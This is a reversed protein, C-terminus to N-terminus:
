ATAIVSAIPAIFDIAADTTPLILDIPAPFRVTTTVPNLAAPGGLNPIPYSLNQFRYPTFGTFIDRGPGGFLLDAGKASLVDDGAIGSLINALENGTLHDNFKSGETTNVRGASLSVTMAPAAGTSVTQQNGNAVDPLVFNIGTGSGGNYYRFSLINGLKTTAFIADNAGAVTGDSLFFNDRTFLLTNRMEAATPAVNNLHFGYLNGGGEAALINDIGGEGALDATGHFQRADLLNARNGGDLTAAEISSLTNVLNSAPTHGSKPITRTLSADKLTFNINGGATVTDTGAGGDISAGAGAGHFAIDTSSQLIFTDNNDGGQFSGTGTFGGSLDFLDDGALGQVTATHSWGNVQFRNAGAGGTLLATEVASGTFSISGHGVHAATNDQYALASDSLVM